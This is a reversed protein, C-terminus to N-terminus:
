LVICVNWSVMALFSNLFVNYVNYVQQIEFYNSCYYNYTEGQPLCIYSKAEHIDTRGDTRLTERTRAMDGLITFTSNKLKKGLYCILQFQAVFFWFEFKGLFKSTKALFGSKFNTNQGTWIETVICQLIAPNKTINAFVNGNHLTLTM